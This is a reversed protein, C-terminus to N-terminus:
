RLRTVFRAAVAFARRRPPATAHPRARRRASARHPRARRTEARPNSHARRTCLLEIEAGLEDGLARLVGGLGSSAGTPPGRLRGPENGM